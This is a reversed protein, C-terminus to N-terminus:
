FKVDTGLTWLFMRDEANSGMNESVESGFLFAFATHFSVPDSVLYRVRLDIEHGIEDSRPVFSKGGDEFMVLGLAPVDHILRNFGFLASLELGNKRKGITFALGGGIKISGYNHDVDIGLWQDELILLDNVNEYTLFSHIEDDGVNQDGGVYTFNLGFWLNRENDPLRFEGGVQFALAGSSMEGIGSQRGAKGFQFYIEGYLELGDMLGPFVLGTGITVVATDPGSFSDVVFIAGLRTGEGIMDPRWLFWLGYAAESDRPTGGAVIAPLAFASLTFATRHFTVSAGAPQLEDQLGPLLITGSSVANDAFPASHRPDFFFPSGKGRVDFSVPLIGASLMFDSSLVAQITVSAEDVILNTTEPNEGFLNTRGSQLRQTRLSLVAGVLEQLEIDLRLALTGEATLESGTGSATGSSVVERSDVLEADRFVSEMRLSGSLTVRLTDVHEAKTVVTQGYARLSTVLLLAAFPIPWLPM